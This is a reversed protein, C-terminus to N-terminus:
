DESGASSGGTPRSVNQSNRLRSREVYARMPWFFGEFPKHWDQADLQQKREQAGRSVIDEKEGQKGSLMEYARQIEKFKAEAKPDNQNLDPHFQKSLLRYRKKIERNSAKGPLGLIQFPDRM